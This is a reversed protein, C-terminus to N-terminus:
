SPSDTQMARAGCALPRARDACAGKGAEAEEAVQADEVRWRDNMFLPDDIM